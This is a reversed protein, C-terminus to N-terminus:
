PTQESFVFAYYPMYLIGILELSVKLHQLMGYFSVWLGTWCGRAQSTGIQGFM